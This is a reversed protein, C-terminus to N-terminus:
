RGHETEKMAEKMAIDPSINALAKAISWLDLNYKKSFSDHGIRHYEAHHSEPGIGGCMPVADADHPKLGTGANAASRLHSVEIPVRDCGAVVCHHRRLFARHRNWVRVPARLIGSKTVKRRRPLTFQLAM